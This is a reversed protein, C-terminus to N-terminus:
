FNNFITLFPYVHSHTLNKEKFSLFKAWFAAFCVAKLKEFTFCIPFLSCWTRLWMLLYSIQAYSTHLIHSFTFVMFLLRALYTVVSLVCARLCTLVNLACARLSKLLRHVNACSCKLCTLMSAYWPGSSVFMCFARARFYAM